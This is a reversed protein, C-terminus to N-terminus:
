AGTGIRNLDPLEQYCRWIDSVLRWILLVLHRGDCAALVSNSYLVQLVPLM